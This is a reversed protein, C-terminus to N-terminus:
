VSAKEEQYRHHNPPHYCEKAIKINKLHSFWLTLSLQEHIYSKM